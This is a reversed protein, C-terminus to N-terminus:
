PLSLRQVSSASLAKPSLARPTAMMSSETVEGEIADAPVDFEALRKDLYSGMNTSLIDAM